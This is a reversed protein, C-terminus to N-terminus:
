VLDSRQPAEPTLCRDGAAEGEGGDSVLYYVNELTWGRDRSWWREGSKGLERTQECKEWVGWM